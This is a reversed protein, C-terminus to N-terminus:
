TIFDVDFHSAKLKLGPDLEAFKVKRTSGTGDADYFLDGSKKDYIIRDKADEAKRGIAFASKALPGADLETFREADLFISDARHKFDKIRHVADIDGAATFAFTDAGKNGFLKDAKGRGELWDDGKGGKMVDRGPGGYLFDDGGKGLFKGKVTSGFMHDTGSTGVERVQGFFTAYFALESGDEENAAGFAAKLVQKVTLSYGSGTM